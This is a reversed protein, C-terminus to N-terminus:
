SNLPIENYISWADVIIEESETANFMRDSSNNIYNPWHIGNNGYRNNPLMPLLRQKNQQSPDIDETAKILEIIGLKYADNYELLAQSTPFM